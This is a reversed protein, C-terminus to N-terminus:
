EYSPPAGPKTILGAYHTRSISITHLLEAAMWSCRAVLRAIPPALLVSRLQISCGPFLSRIEGAGIGRVNQNKPNNLRFDFWLITGGPKLVRLIEAAVARKLQVDLISTFVTFQAVLDFQIDPWPLEAANGISLDSQPPLRQRAREIRDTCLDIGCLASKGGM